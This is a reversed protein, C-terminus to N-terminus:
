RQRDALNRLEIAQEGAPVAGEEIEAAEKTSLRKWLLAVIAIGFVGLLAALAAGQWASRNKKIVLLVM